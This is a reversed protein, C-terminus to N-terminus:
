RSSLFTRTIQHRDKYISHPSLERDAGGGFVIGAREQLQTKWQTIRNPHVDIQRALEAVTRNGKIAAL